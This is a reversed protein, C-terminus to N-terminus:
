AQLRPADLAAAAASELPLRLTFCSGQGVGGSSAHITGGHLDVLARVLALGIGLGGATRSLPSELQTFMGFVEDLQEAAIGVGSDRVHIVAQAGQQLLEVELTGPPPTYKSANNILNTVIQSLRTMDGMVWVPDPPLHVTLKHGLQDIAPQTSELATRLAVALDIRALRLEIKGRTIRAVDLLDDVLRALHRVQREIVERIWVLQPDALKKLKLVAVANSIPAMPNRLEHALTALFDDKRRDALRLQAQAQETQEIQLSLRKNAEELEDTRRAVEGLMTNFADVMLGLEDDSTKAVTIRYEGREVVDKAASSLAHVPQMVKRQLPDFVLAALLLSVLMTVALITMYDGVRAAVDYRSQMFLRGVPEANHVIPRSLELRNGTIRHGVWTGSAAQPAPAAGDASFSAFVRGDSRYVVATRVEPQLRLLALNQEMAKQDDFALATESTFALLDAQTALESVARERYNYVEYVLLAAASLALAFAVTLLVVATLRRQLTTYRRM